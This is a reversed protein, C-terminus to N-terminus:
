RPAETQRFYEVTKRLGDPLSVRPRWSLRERARTCDPRRRTPDDNPLPVSCVREALNWWLRRLDAQESKSLCTM